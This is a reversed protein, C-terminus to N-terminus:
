TFLTSAGQREFTHAVRACPDAFMELVIEGNTADINARDVDIEVGADLITKAIVPDHVSSPIHIVMKM